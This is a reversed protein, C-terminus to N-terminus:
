LYYAVIKFFFFIPNELRKLPNSVQKFLFTIRNSLKSFSVDQINHVPFPKLQKNNFISYDHPLNDSFCIFSTLNQPM